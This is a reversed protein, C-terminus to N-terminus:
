RFFYRFCAPLFTSPLLLILFTHPIFTFSISKISSEFKNKESRIRHHFLFITFKYIPNVIFQNESFIVFFDLGQGLSLFQSFSPAFFNLTSYQFLKKVLITKLFNCFKFIFYFVDIKNKQWCAVFPWSFLIEYFFYKGNLLFNHFTMFM